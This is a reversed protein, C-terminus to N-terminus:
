ADKVRFLQLEFVLERGDEEDWQEGTQVFGLKRVVALSPENDPAVSAVVRAVGRSRALAVLGRAAAQAYGRRRFAPFVTYGIEVGDAYGPGNRGPPGHFGAHGVMAGDDVLAYVSWELPLRERARLAFFAADHDDPWDTPIAVGLRRAAEEHRGGALAALLEHGLPVLEVSV